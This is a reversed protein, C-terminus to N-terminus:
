PGLGMKCGALIDYAYEFRYNDASILSETEKRINISGIISRVQKWKKKIGTIGEKKDDDRKNEINIQLATQLNLIWQCILNSLRSFYLRFSHRSDCNM